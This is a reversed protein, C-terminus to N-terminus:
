REVLGNEPQVTCEGAQPGDGLYNRRSIPAPDIIPQCPAPGSPKDPRIDLVRALQELAVRNSLCTEYYRRSKEALEARLVPSDALQVIRAALAEADNVPVSAFPEWSLERVAENLWATRGTIVARGVSAYAYIKLPCVRQAKETAGFIGLCIDANRIEEALQDPSQWSREWSADPLNKMEREVVPSMQGDGILRFHLNKREALLGATRLITDIGHLPIMTGIFLVRCHEHAVYPAHRYAAENTSLPIAVVKQAPLGFAHGLFDANQQTDSIVVDAYHFARAELAFVFRALLSGANLIKRDYVLTEHISIFADAIVRGPKCRSPLWSMAALILISPYPVYCIAQRNPRAAYRWLVLLHAWAASVAMAMMRMTKLRGTWAPQKMPVAIETIRYSGLEHLGKLRYLINPYGETAQHVGIIVLEPKLLGDATREAADPLGGLQGKVADRLGTLCASLKEKRPKELLIVSTLELSLRALQRLCWLPEERWYDKVTQLTNRFIYYKRRPPHNYPMLSRLWSAQSALADGIDHRMLPEGSMVIELGHRRARLCFEHDISDVFYDDRFGGIQRALALPFLTGSTIVTKKRQWLPQTNSRPGGRRTDHYNSGVIVRDRGISNQIHVLEALLNPYALTDQDFSVAWEYGQDLADQVGQNLAAALGLNRPNFRLSVAAARLSDLRQAVSQTASNDVIFIGPFQSRLAHIREAVHEDPFYTVVIAATNSQKAYSM